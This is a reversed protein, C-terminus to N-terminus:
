YNNCFKGNNKEKTYFIFLALVALALVLVVAVAVAATVALVALPELLLVATQWYELVAVALVTQAVEV